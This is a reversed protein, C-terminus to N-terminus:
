EFSSMCLNKINQIKAMSVFARSLALPLLLVIFKINSLCVFFKKIFRFSQTYKYTLLMRRVVVVINEVGKFIKFFQAQFVNVYNQSFEKKIRYFSVWSYCFPRQLHYASFFLSCLFFSLILLQPFELQQAMYSVDDRCKTM